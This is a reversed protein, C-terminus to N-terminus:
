RQLIPNSNKDLFTRVTNWFMLLPSTSTKSFQSLLKMNNLFRKEEKNTNNIVSPYYFAMNWDSFYRKSVKGEWLIKLSQHRKDCKIKEYLEQIDNKEGELIQVFKHDYYVLCGTINKNFNTTRAEALIEDLDTAVMNTSETSIYTLQYM